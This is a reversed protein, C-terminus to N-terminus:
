IQSLLESSHVRNIFLPTGDSTAMVILPWGSHGVRLKVNSYLGAIDPQQHIDVLIPVFYRNIMKAILPHRILRQIKFHSESISQGFIIM